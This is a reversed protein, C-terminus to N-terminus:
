EATVGANRVVKTWREIETRIFTDFEAPQDVVPTLALDALRARVEPTNVALAVDDRIKQVTEKPTAHPVVLGFVSQVVYGPLLEVAAPITPAIAARQASLVAIAKMQASKLHPLSSFLPDFLLDVRGAFVEGYAQGAGNYPVHLIDIGATTKLLEGALHMSSGVGPSAYTLKGPQKKALEIVEKLNSAPLDNRASIVIPSMAILTVGSLDNVTDFPLSKRLSPNIMHGTIVMGLVQGDPKAKAVFDTGVVTGAGPKYLVIVPQRWLERLQQELLRALIDIAGGPANPVVLTVPGSPFRTQARALPVGALGVPAVVFAKLTDRRGLDVRASHPTRDRRM